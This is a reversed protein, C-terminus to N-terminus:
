ARKCDVSGVVKAFKKSGESSSDLGSLAIGASSRSVSDIWDSRFSGVGRDRCLELALEGGGRGTLM